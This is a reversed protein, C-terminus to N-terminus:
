PESVNLGKRSALKLREVKSIFTEAAVDVGPCLRLHPAVFLKLIEIQLSASLELFWGDWAEEIKPMDQRVLLSNTPIGQLM